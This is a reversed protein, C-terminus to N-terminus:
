TENGRGDSQWCFPVMWGHTRVETFRSPTTLKLCNQVVNEGCIRHKHPGRIKKLIGCRAHRTLASPIISAIPRTRGDTRGCHCLCPARVEHSFFLLIKAYSQNKVEWYLYLGGFLFQRVLNLSDHM